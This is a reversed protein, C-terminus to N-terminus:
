WDSKKNTRWSVEKDFEKLYGLVTHLNDVCDRALTSLLLLAHHRSTENKCIPKSQLGKGTGHPIEFLGAHLLHPV